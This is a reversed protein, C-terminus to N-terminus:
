PDSPKPPTPMPPPPGPMPPYVNPDAWERAEVRVTHCPAALTQVLDHAKLTVNHTPCVHTTTLGHDTTRTAIETWGDPLQPQVPPSDVSQVPDNLTINERRGCLNCTFHYTQHIM